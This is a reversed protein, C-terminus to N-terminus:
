KKLNKRWEIEELEGRAASAYVSDPVSELLEMLANVSQEDRDMKMYTKGLYYLGEARKEDRPTHVLKFQELATVANEFNNRKYFAIGADLYVEDYGEFRTNEDKDLRNYLDFLIAERKLDDFVGKSISYIQKSAYTKDKTYNNLMEVIYDPKRSELEQVLFDLMGKTFIDPNIQQTIRDLMISTMLYYPNQKNEVSDLMKGSEESMGMKYLSFATYSKMKDRFDADGGSTIMDTNQDYLSIIKLFEKDAYHDDMVKEISTALIQEAEEVHAGQPFSAMYESLVVIADTFNRSQFLEKGYAFKSEQLMDMWKDPFVLDTNETLFQTLDDVTQKYEGDYYKDKIDGFRIDQLIEQAERKYETDPFVELMGEVLQKAQAYQSKKYADKAKTLTIRQRMKYVEPLHESTFNMRIFNDVRSDAEDYKNQEFYARILVLEAESRIDIDRSKLAPELSKEWEEPMKSQLHRRAYMVLCLLGGKKEKYVQRCIDLRGDTATNNGLKEYMRASHYMALDSFESSPYLSYLKEYVERAIDFQNREDFIEAMAYLEEADLLGMQDKRDLVTLFSRYALDYDKKQYHLLGIKANQRTFTEPFNRIVDERADIAKEFRGSRSYIDAIREYAMKRIDRDRLTKIVSNYAFIAENFLMAMEKAEASKVLADKKRFSDPYEKIFDDFIQSAYIYNDNSNEGLKFYVLGLRFLGEQRYYGVAGSNLFNETMTLATGLEGEAIAEDIRGLIVDAEQDELIRDTGKILPQEIGYSLQIDESKKARAATILIDGDRESLSYDTEPYFTITLMRGDISLSKIFPDNFSTGSDAALPTVLEVMMKSEGESVSVISSAMGDVVFESFHGNNRVYIGAAWGNLFVFFTLIFLFTRAMPM